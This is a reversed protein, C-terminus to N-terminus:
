VDKFIGSLYSKITGLRSELLSLEKLLDSKKQIDTELSRLKKESYIIREKLKKDNEMFYLVMNEFKENFGNGEFGEVYGLVNDSMRVSKANSKKEKVYNM